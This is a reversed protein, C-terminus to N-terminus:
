GLAAWTKAGVIGDVTLNNEAQFAKVSELTKAGFKGDIDGVGYGKATLRQQLYIVDMGAIGTKLTRVTSETLFLDQEIQRRKKLGDLVQGNAKNYLLISEAIVAKTRNGNATLQDISGINFAFSVLADFENQNWCYGSYKDVKKEFQELDALLYAEAQAASIKQGKQVGATHGYGITWVGAPCLYADVKLGEFEKILNIGNQSIKM